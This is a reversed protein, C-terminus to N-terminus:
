ILRRVLMFSEAFPVGVTSGRLKALAEIIELTRPHPPQKLQSQYCNMAEKKIDIFKSIDSWVNPMYANDITPLNWETESLTEYTYINEVKIGNIPRLAVMASHSVVTHDMHMDGKHPIFAINPRIDEVVKLFEANIKVLPTERLTVIPFDLFITDKVGLLQHAALAESREEKIEEDTNSKTVECIFVEHGQSAYKAITGGVGLVEDDNHPAFVLVKM